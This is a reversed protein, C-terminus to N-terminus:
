CGFVFCVLLSILKLFRSSIKPNTSPWIVFHILSGHFISSYSALDHYCFPCMFVCFPPFLDQGSTHITFKWCPTSRRTSFAYAILCANLNAHFKTFVLFEVKDIPFVLPQASRLSPSPFAVVVLLEPSMSAVVAARWAVPAASAAVVSVPAPVRRPLTEDRSGPSPVLPLCLWWLPSYRERLHTLVKTPSTYMYLSVQITLGPHVSTESSVAYDSMYKSFIQPVHFTCTWDQLNWQVHIKINNQFHIYMFWSHWM